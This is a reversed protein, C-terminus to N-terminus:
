PYPFGWDCKGVIRHDEARWRDANFAAWGKARAPMCTLANTVVARDAAGLRGVGKALVSVADSSQGVLDSLYSADVRHGAEARALDRRVVFAEPNLANLALLMVLGAVAAGSVFWRRGAAVGALSAGLLLFLVVIWVAFVVCYFRLMTLGYAHEYLSLRHVASVVIVLTLAVATEALVTLRVTRAAATARLALLTGLTLTAVALLQFYGSRAYEAYTLGHTRLVHRGGDGLAVVQAATFAAFLTVLAGLVITMETAGLRPTEASEPVPADRASSTRLLGSMAWAGILVVVAHGVLSGTAPMRVFSAFVADASRLLAGLIIVVPVALLVGRVFPASRGEAPRRAAVPRWAFAPAFLGHLAAAFARAAAGPLTLDFVSGGGAYSAALALLVVVAIVDPGILWPSTRITLWVGFLPVLAALARAQPNALRGSIVLGVAAVVVLLTAALGIAGARVAIDLAGGVAAALGVVGLDAPQEVTLDIGLNRDGRLGVALATM